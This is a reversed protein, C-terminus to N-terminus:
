PINFLLEADVDSEVFQFLISYFFHFKVSYRTFIMRLRHSSFKAHVKTRDLREEWPKFVTKGTSEISENLCQVRDIDIKAYLTHCLGLETNVHAGCCCRNNM